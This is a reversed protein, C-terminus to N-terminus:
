RNAHLPIFMPIQAGAYKVEAVMPKQQIGAVGETPRMVGIGTLEQHLQAIPEMISVPMVSAARRVLIGAGILLLMIIVIELWIRRGRGARMRRLGAVRRGPEAPGFDQPLAAM